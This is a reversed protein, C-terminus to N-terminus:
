DALEGTFQSTERCGAVNYKKKKTKDLRPQFNYHLSESGSRCIDVGQANFTEKNEKTMYSKCNINQRASHPQTNTYTEHPNRGPQQSEQGLQWDPTEATVDGWALGRIGQIM